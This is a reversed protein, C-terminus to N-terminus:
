LTNYWQAYKSCMNEFGEESTCILQDGHVMRISCNLNVQENKQKDNKIRGLAELADKVHDEPNKNVSAVTASASFDKGTMNKIFEVFTKSNGPKWYKETFERGIEPNDVLTGYKERFYEKTQDVAMIALVYAHYNASSEGSLLHPVALTPRPSDFGFFERETTRVVRLINEPNLEADKLEYIKKEGYPVVALYRLAFSRFRNESFVFEGILNEPIKTGDRGEAYKWIWDGEKMFSDMFMSQIEAFAGSTPASEQSYCPSPMQINSFHAAHGGEHMLTKMAKFGGGTQGPVANASFNLRAPHFKNEDCFSPFPGHMFGNQYKGKRSVLDIQIQAKKFDIGLATFTRGWRILAQDFPFYPELKEAIDGSSQYRINWPGPNELEKFSQFCVQATDDKLVDLVKFLEKKSIGENLTTRYDYYDEFGLMRGLKNREKVLEIYGNELLFLELNRLGTWAAKRVTEDKDNGILLLMKGMGAEIYDGTQPDKYGLPYSQRKRGIEGEMKIIKKQIVLAEPDSISHCQFFHIWGELGTREWDSLEKKKLESRIIDIISGDSIYARLDNENQEFEGEVFTSLNMYSSWFSEEKKTHLKLYRENLKQNLSM